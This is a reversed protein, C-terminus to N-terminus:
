LLAFGILGSMIVGALSITNTLAGDSDDNAAASGTPRASGSSASASRSASAAASATTAGSSGGSASATGPAPTPAALPATSQGEIQALAAPTFEGSMGTLGFKASFALAPFQPQDEDKLSLSEVRIFYERSDPGITPDPTFQVSGSTAVNVDEVITQLRTQQQANGVYVSIISPGFEELTPGSGSEIWSITVEAGGVFSSTAVPNTIFVTAFAQSALALLVFAKSFM